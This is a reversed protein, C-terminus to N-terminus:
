VITKGGIQPHKLPNLRGGPILGEPGDAISGLLGSFKALKKYHPWTPLWFTAASKAPDAPAAPVPIEQWPTGPWTSLDGANYAAPLWTAIDGPQFGAPRDTIGFQWFYEYLGPTISDPTTTVLPDFPWVDVYTAFRWRMHFYFWKPDIKPDEILWAIRWKSQTFQRRGFADGVLPENRALMFGPWANNYMNSPADYSPATDGTIWQRFQQQVLPLLTGGGPLLPLNFRRAFGAYIGGLTARDIATEELWVSGDLPACDALM